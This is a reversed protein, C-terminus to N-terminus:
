HRPWVPSCPRRVSGRTLIAHCDLPPYAQALQSVNMIVNTHRRSRASRLVLLRVHCPGSVAIRMLSAHAVSRSTVTYCHRYRSRSPNSFCIYIVLRSFDTHVTFWQTLVSFLLIWYPATGELFWGKSVWRQIQAVQAHSVSKIEKM